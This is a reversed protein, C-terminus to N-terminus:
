KTATSPKPSSQLVKTAWHYGRARTHQAALARLRLAALLTDTSTEEVLTSHSSGGHFGLWQELDTFPKPIPTSIAVPMERRTTALTPPMAKSQRKSGTMTARCRRFSSTGRHCGSPNLTLRNSSSSCEAEAKSLNKYNVTGKNIRAQTLTDRCGLPLIRIKVEESADQLSLRQIGYVM